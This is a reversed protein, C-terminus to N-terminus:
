LDMEQSMKLYKKMLSIMESISTKKIDVPTTGPTPIQMSAPVAVQGAM